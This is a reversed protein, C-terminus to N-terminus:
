GKARSATTKPVRGWRGALTERGWTAWSDALLCCDRKVTLSLKWFGRVRASASFSFIPLCPLTLTLSSSWPAPNSFAGFKLWTHHFLSRQVYVPFFSAGTFKMSKTAAWNLVTLSPVRSVRAPLEGCGERQPRLPDCHILMWQVEFQYPLCFLMLETPAWVQCLKLLIFVSWSVTYKSLYANLVLQHLSLPLPTSSNLVPWLLPSAWGRSSGRSCTM